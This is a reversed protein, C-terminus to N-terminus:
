AGRAGRPGLLRARGEAMEEPQELNLYSRLVTASGANLVGSWPTAVGEVLGLVQLWGNWQLHDFMGGHLLGSYTVSFELYKSVLAAEAMFIISMSDEYTEGADLILLRPGSGGALKQLDYEYSSFSVQAPTAGVNRFAFDLTVSFLLGRLQAEFWRDGSSLEKIPNLATDLEEVSRLTVALSLLPAAADIRAKAAEDASASAARALQGTAAAQLASTEVQQRALEGQAQVEALQKYGLAALELSGEVSERTSKALRYTYFALGLTGLATGLTAIAVLWDLGGIVAAIVSGFLLLGLVLPAVWARRMNRRASAIEPDSEM